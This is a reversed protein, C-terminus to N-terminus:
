YEIRMICNNGYSKSMLSAESMVKEKEMKSKSLIMVGCSLYNDSDYSLWYGYLSFRGAYSSRDIRIFSTEKRIGDNTTNSSLIHNNEITLGGQYKLEGETFEVKYLHMIGKKIIVHGELVVPTNNEMIISYSFWEGCINTRQQRRIIYKIIKFIFPLAMGILM